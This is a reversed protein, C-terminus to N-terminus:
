PGSLRWPHDRTEFHVTNLQLPRSTSQTHRARQRSCHTLGSQHLDPLSPCEGMIWLNIKAATAAVPSIPPSTATAGWAPAAVLVQVACGVTVTSDAVVPGLDPLVWTVIVPVLKTLPAVTCNPPTLAVAAVKLELVWIVAVLGATVLMPETSTVTVSGAPVPVEFQVEALLKASWNV